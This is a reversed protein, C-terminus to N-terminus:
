RQGEPPLRSRPPADEERDHGSVGFDHLRRVAGELETLRSAVDELRDLVARGTVTTEATEAEAERAIFHQAAAATLLAIFGIGVFMVAIAVVRGAHTKPGIDGYGVTTVTTVAWWIGDWASLHQEKEIAAFAAGGGVITLFALFAAYPLGQLSLFRRVVGATLALRLVRLLRFARASQLAAPLFPPTLFVIALELPHERVWRTRERTVSLMALTEVLFALWILWNLVAAGTQWHSELASNEIVIVPIVLIAAVLM